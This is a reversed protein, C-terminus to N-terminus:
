RDPGGQPGPLAHDITALVRALFAPAEFDRTDLAIDPVIGAVENEGDHLYRVCDPMRIRLGSNALVVALGGNTYGCGAGLTPRGIVIGRGATKLHSLFQEAASATHSDVLVFLPGTYLGVMPASEDRVLAQREEEALIAYLRRRDAGCPHDDSRAINSCEPRHGPETWLPSLDCAVRTEALMRRAHDHLRVILSRQAADLRGGDLVAEYERVDEAFRSSWHPHRIAAMANCGPERPSLMLAVDEAWDNGGGNHLIDVILAAVEHAKLAEVAAAVRNVITQRVAFYAFEELCDRDCDPGPQRDRLRNWTAVCADYQRVDQFSAIRLFGVRRGEPTTLVAAPLEESAGAFPWADSPLPYTFSAPRKEFGLQECAAEAAMRWPLSEVEGAPAPAPGTETATAELRCVIRESGRLGTVTIGDRPTFPSRLILALAAATVEDEDTEGALSNFRQVEEAIPKGDVAIVEDGPRLRCGSTKATDVERVLVRTGDSRWRLPYRPMVGYVPHVDLDIKLHPDAFAAVFALLAWLADRADRARRIAQMTHENLAFPDIDRREIAWELNAYGASLAARLQLYDELWPEVEFRPTAPRAAHGCGLAAAVAWAIVLTTRVPGAM